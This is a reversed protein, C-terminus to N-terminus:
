YYKLYSVRNELEKFEEDTLGVVDTYGYEWSSGIKIKYEPHYYCENHTDGSWCPYLEAWMHKDTIITECWDIRPLSLIFEEYDKKAQQLDLEAVKIAALLM